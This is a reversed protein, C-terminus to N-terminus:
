TNSHFVCDQIQLRGNGVAAALAGGSGAGATNGTFTCDEVIVDLQTLGKNYKGDAYKRNQMWVAGGSNPSSTNTFSCNKIILKTPHQISISGGKPAGETVRSGAFSSDKILVDHAYEM